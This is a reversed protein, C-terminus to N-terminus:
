AATKNAGEESNREFEIVICGKYRLKGERYEVKYRITGGVRRFQYRPSRSKMRVWKRTKRIGEDVVLAGVDSNRVVAM